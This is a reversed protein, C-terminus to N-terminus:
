RNRRGASSTLEIWTPNTKVEGVWSQYPLQKLEQTYHALPNNLNQALFGLSRYTGQIRYRGPKLGAFKDASIVVQKGYFHRPPLAIWYKPLELMLPPYSSRESCFCDADIVVFPGVPEKGKYVTLQLTALTNSAVDDIDKSIFLDQKSENWIEVQLTVDQGPKFRVGKTSIRVFITPEFDASTNPPTQQQSLVQMSLLVISLFPSRIM